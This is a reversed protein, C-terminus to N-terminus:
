RGAQLVAPPGASSNRDIATVAIVEPLPPMWARANQAVPLVETKWENGRRTQLVWLWPRETDAPFWNVKLLHGKGEVRVTLKPKALPAKGLWPCAPVLAPQSYVERELGSALAGNRMLSMMDWHIHGETGAQRRTYRIQDVIEQPPWKGNAKTSDLGAM